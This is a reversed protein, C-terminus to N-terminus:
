FTRQHDQRQPRSRQVIQEPAWVGDSAEIPLACQLHLFWLDDRRLGLISPAWHLVHQRNVQHLHSHPSPPFLSRNLGQSM